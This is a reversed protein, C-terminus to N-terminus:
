KQELIKDFIINHFSNGAFHPTLHYHMKRFLQPIRLALKMSRRPDHTGCTYVYYTIRVIHTGGKYTQKNTKNMCRELGLELGLLGMRSLSSLVLPGDGAQDIKHLLSQWKGYSFFVDNGMSNCGEQGEKQSRFARSNSRYRQM